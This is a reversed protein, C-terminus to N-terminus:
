EVTRLKTSEVGSALLMARELTTVWKWCASRWCSFLATRLKPQLFRVCKMRTCRLSSSVRSSPFLRWTYTDSAGSARPPNSRECCSRPAEKQGGHPSESDGLRLTSALEKGASISCSCGLQRAEGQGCRGSGSQCEAVLSSADVGTATPAEISCHSDCIGVRSTEGVSTAGLSHVWSGGLSPIFAGRARRRRSRCSGAVAEM